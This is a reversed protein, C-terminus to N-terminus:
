NFFEADLIRPFKIREFPKVKRSRYDDRDLFIPDCVTDLGVPRALFRDQGARGGDQVPSVADPWVPDTQYTDAMIADASARPIFELTPRKKGLLGPTKAQYKNRSIGILDTKPFLTAVGDFWAVYSFLRGEIEVFEFLPIWINRDDALRRKVKADRDANWNWAHELLARPARHHYKWFDQEDMNKILANISSQAATLYSAEFAQADFPVWGTESQYDLTLLPLNKAIEALVNAAERGFLSPRAYNLNLTALAGDDEDQEAEENPETDHLYLQFHVGTDPHDYDFTDEYPSFAPIKRIAHRLAGLFSKASGAAPKLGLDFSM